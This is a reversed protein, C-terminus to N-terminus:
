NCVRVGNVIRCVQGSQYSRGFVGRTTTQPAAYQVSQAYYAQAPQYVPQAYSYTPTSYSYSSGTSGGSSSSVTTAPHYTSGVSSRAKLAAVEKELAIIRRAADPITQISGLDEDGSAPTNNVDLTGVGAAPLAEEFEAKVLTQVKAEVKKEFDQGFTKLLDEFASTDSAQMAVTRVEALSQTLTSIQQQSAQQTSAVIEALSKLQQTLEAESGSQRQEFSALTTSLSSLSETLRTDDKLASQQLSLFSNLGVSLPAM